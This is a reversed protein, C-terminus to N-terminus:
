DACLFILDMTVPGDEMRGTSGLPEWGVEEEEDVCSGPSDGVGGAAVHSIILSSQIGADREDAM